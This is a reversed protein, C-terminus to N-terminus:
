ALAKFGPGAPAPRVSNNLTATKPAPLSEVRPEGALAVASSRLQDRQGSEHAHERGPEHRAVLLPQEINMRGQQGREGAQAGMLTHEGSPRLHMAAADM